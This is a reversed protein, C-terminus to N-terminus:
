EYNIINSKCIKEFPGVNKLLVGSPSTFSLDIEFNSYIILRDGAPHFQVPYVAVQAIRQNRIHGTKLVEAKKGPFYTSAAYAEANITFREKLFGDSSEDDVLEPVPFVKFNERSTSDTAIAELTIDECEPIAVLFRVVPLEPSGVQATWLYEPIALRQYTVGDHEVERVSMGPVSVNFNVGSLSSENVEFEPERASTTLGDFSIWQQANTQSIQLFPLVILIILYTKWYRGSKMMM